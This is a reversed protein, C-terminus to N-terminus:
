SQKSQEYSGVLKWKMWAPASAAVLKDPKTSKTKGVGLKSLEFTSCNLDSDLNFVIDNYYTQLRVIILHACLGTWSNTGGRVVRLETNKHIFIMLNMKSNHNLCLCFLVMWQKVTGNNIYCFYHWFPCFVIFWWGKLCVPSTWNEELNHQWM